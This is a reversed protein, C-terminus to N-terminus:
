ASHSEHKTGSISFTQFSDKISLTKIGLTIISFAVRGLTKTGQVVPTQRASEKRSGYKIGNRVLSSHKECNNFGILFHNIYYIKILWPCDNEKVIFSIEVTILEKKYYALTNIVLCPHQV